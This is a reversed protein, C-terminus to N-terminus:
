RILLDLSFELCHTQLTRKKTQRQLTEKNPGNHASIKNYKIIKIMEFINKQENSIMIKKKIIGHM